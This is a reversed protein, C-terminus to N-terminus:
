RAAPPRSWRPRADTPPAWAVVGEFKWDVPTLIRAAEMPQAFGYQDILQAWHLVYHAHDLPQQTAQQAPQQAAQHAAQQARAPLVSALLALVTVSHSRIVRRRLPRFLSRSM